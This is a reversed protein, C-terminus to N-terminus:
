KELNRKATKLVATLINKLDLCEEILGNAIDQDLDESDRLLRLWYHTEVSEKLSIQIKAIFDKKSQAGDAEEINAGISTGSKLLQRSLVYEKRGAVLDKCVRIIKLSFAYSKTKLINERM